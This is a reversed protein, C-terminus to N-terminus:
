RKWFRFEFSIRVEKGLNVGGGHIAYPSFLMVQGYKVKPRILKLFSGDKKSTVAPVSFKNGDIIPYKHTRITKNEKKEIIKDIDIFKLRLKKALKKGITSKGVGMMGTLVLNKKM